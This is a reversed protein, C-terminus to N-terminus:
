FLLTILLEVYLRICIVESLAKKLIRFFGDMTFFYVSGGHYNENLFGIVFFLFCFLIDNELEAM